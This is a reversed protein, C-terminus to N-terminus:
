IVSFRENYYRVVRIINSKGEHCNPDVMADLLVKGVYFNSAVNVLCYEEDNDDRYRKCPDLGMVLILDLVLMAWYLDNHLNTPLVNDYTRDRWLEMAKNREDNM